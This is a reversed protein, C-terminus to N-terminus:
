DPFLNPRLSELKLFDWSISTPDDQLPDSTSDPIIIEVYEGNSSAGVLNLSFNADDIKESAKELYALLVPTSSPVIKMGEMFFKISTEDEQTIVITSNLKSTKFQTPLIFNEIIEETDADVNGRDLMEEFYEDKFISAQEDLKGELITEAKINLSFAKV